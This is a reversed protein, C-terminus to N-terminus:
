EAAYHTVGQAMRAANIKQAPTVPRGEAQRWLNELGIQIARVEQLHSLAQDRDPLAVASLDFPTYNPQGARTNNEQNLLYLNGLQNNAAAANMHLEILGTSMKSYEAMKSARVTAEAVPDKAPAFPHGSETVPRLSLIMEKSNWMPESPRVDDAIKSVESLAGLIVPVFKARIEAAKKNLYEPTFGERPMSNMAADLSTYATDATQKQQRALKVADELQVLNKMTIPGKRLGYAKHKYAPVADSSPTFHESRPRITNATTGSADLPTIQAPWNKPVGVTVPAATIPSVKRTL